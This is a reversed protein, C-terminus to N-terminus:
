DEGECAGDQLLGASAFNSKLTPPLFVTSWNEGHGCGDLAFIVIKRYLLNPSLRIRRTKKRQLTQRALRTCLRAQVLM